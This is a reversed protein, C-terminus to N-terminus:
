IITPSSSGPVGTAACTFASSMEAILEEAAYANEGFRSSLDRDCRDKNGTWHALEHLITSYYAEVTDFKALDPMRISDRAPSYGAVDGVHKIDAGTSTAVHLAHPYDELNNADENVEIPEPTPLAPINLDDCQEANFVTFLRLTPVKKNRDLPAGCKKCNRKKDTTWTSCSECKINFTWFVIRTGKEGKRVVGGLAQAQKFTCWRHDRYGGVNGAVWLLLVNIGRYNKQSKANEPFACLGGEVTWPKVWPAAGRELAAIIRNTVDDYANFKAM